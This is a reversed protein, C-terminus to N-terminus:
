RREDNDILKACNQCLWIGNEASKREEPTMNADFRPGNQSAATIHAAVGINIAKTPNTQPGNTLKRCNPNSCRLGVRRSLIEKTKEDFDDRMTDM